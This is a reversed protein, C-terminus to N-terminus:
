FNNQHRQLSAMKTPMLPLTIWKESSLTVTGMELILWFFGQKSLSIDLSVFHSQLNIGFLSTLSQRMKSSVTLGAAMTHCPTFM